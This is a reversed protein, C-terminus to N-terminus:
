REFCFFGPLEPIVVRRNYEPLRGLVQSYEFPNNHAPVCIYRLNAPIHQRFHVDTLRRHAWERDMLGFIHHYLKGESLLTALPSYPFYATGPHRLSYRYALEQHNDSPLRMWRFMDFNQESSKSAPFLVLALVILTLGANFARLGRRSNSEYWDLVLAMLGLTLFYPMPGLSNFDGGIKIRGLFSTPMTAFAMLVFLLWPNRRVWSRLGSSGEPEAASESEASSGPTLVRRAVLTLPIPALFVAFTCFYEVSLLFLGKSLEPGRYIWEQSSPITFINFMLSSVGFMTRFLLTTAALSAISWLTYRVASRFGSTALVWLPLAVLLPAATQKSWVALAACSTSLLCTTLSPTAERRRLYLTLGAIGAFGFMPADAHIWYAGFLLTKTMFSAQVLGLVLFLGIMSFRGNSEDGRRSFCLCVPPTFFLAFAICSGTLIAHTPSSFLGAPLYVLYAMPPYITDMVAGPGYPSVYIKAGYWLGVAPALRSSNWDHLPTQGITNAAGWLSVFVAAPCLLLCLREVPLASRARTFFYAGFALAVTLGALFYGLYPLHDPDIMPPM